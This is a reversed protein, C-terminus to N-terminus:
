LLNDVLVGSVLGGRDDGRWLWDVVNDVRATPGDFTKPNLLKYLFTYYRVPSTTILYAAFGVIKPLRNQKTCPARM